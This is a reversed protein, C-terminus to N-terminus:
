AASGPAPLEEVDYLYNAVNRLEQFNLNVIKLRRQIKRLGVDIILFDNVNFFEDPELRDRYKLPPSEKEDDESVTEPYAGDYSLWNSNTEIFINIKSFKFSTHSKSISKMEWKFYGFVVEDDHTGQIYEVMYQNSAGYPVCLANNRRNIIGSFANLVDQSCPLPYHFTKVLPYRQMANEHTLSLLDFILSSYQFPSFSNSICLNATNRLALYINRLTLRDSSIRKFETYTKENSSSGFYINLSPYYPNAYDMDYKIFMQMKHREPPRECFSLVKSRKSPDVPGRKLEIDKIMEKEPDTLDYTRREERPQLGSNLFGECKKLVDIMKSYLIHLKFVLM